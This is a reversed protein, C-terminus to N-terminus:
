RSKRLPPPLLAYRAIGQEEQSAFNSNIRIDLLEIRTKNDVSVEMTQGHGLQTISAFQPDLLQRISEVKPLKESESVVEIKPVAGSVELSYIQDYQRLNARVVYEKAELLPSDRRMSPFEGKGLTLIEYYDFGKPLYIRWAFELPRNTPIARVYVKNPDVVEFEGLAAKLRVWEQNIPALRKREFFTLTALYIIASLVLTDILNRVM